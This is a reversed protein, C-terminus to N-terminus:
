GAVDRGGMTERGSRVGEGHKKLVSIKRRVYGVVEDDLEHVTSKV